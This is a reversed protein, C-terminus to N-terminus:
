RVKKSNDIVYMSQDLDNSIRSSLEKDARNASGRVSIDGSVLEQADNRATQVQVQVQEGLFFHTGAHACHSLSIWRL